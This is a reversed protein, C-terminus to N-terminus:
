LRLNLQMGVKENYHKEIVIQNEKDLFVNDRLTSLVNVRLEMESRMHQRTVYDYTTNIKAYYDDRAERTLVRLNNMQQCIDLWRENVNLLRGLELGSASSALEISAGALMCSVNMKQYRLSQTEGCALGVM